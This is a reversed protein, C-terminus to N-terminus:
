KRNRKREEWTGEIEEERGEQGLINKYTREREMNEIEKRREKAENRSVRKRRM